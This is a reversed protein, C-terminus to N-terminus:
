EKNYSFCVSVHSLVSHFHSPAEPCLPGAGLINIYVAVLRHVIYYTQTSVSSQLSFWHPRSVPSFVAPFFFDM